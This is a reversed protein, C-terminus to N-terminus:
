QHLSFSTWKKDKEFSIDVFFCERLLHELRNTLKKIKKIAQLTWEGSLDNLIAPSGYFRISNVLHCLEHLQFSNEKRDTNPFSNKWYELVDNQLQNVSEKKIRFSLLERVDAGFMAYFFSYGKNISTLSNIIFDWLVSLLIVKQEM